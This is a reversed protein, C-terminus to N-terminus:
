NIKNLIYKIENELNQIGDHEKSKRGSFVEESKKGFFMIGALSKPLDKKYKGLVLYGRRRLSNRKVASKTVSKPVVFSLHPSNMNKDLFFKFSLNTSNIFKGKQLVLEFLKKDVRNKKPLM